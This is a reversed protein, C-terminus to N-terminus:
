TRRLVARMRWTALALLAVAFGALVGLQSGVDRVGADHRILEAFADIAWYHPTVRAATALTDSFLEIPLMAGGLAGLCLAVITGVGGAQEPDAFVTGFVMALGSAAAAALVIVAAAGLPDGWHVGYLVLTAVLIYAGQVVSVLFRGLAEGAIITGVTTPTSRMRSSIGLQRTQILAAAGSIGTLFLFLVLQSPAAVDYSAVGEPFLRDGATVTRVEVADLAGAADAVAAQAREPSAGRAVLAREAAARADVRALAEEVLTRLQQGAATTGTLVEVDVPAGSRVREDLDAPLVIGGDLATGEVRDRLDEARGLRDIQVDHAALSDLVLAATEGEPGVVGLRPDEEGRFQTGIVLILAVPFVFVFFVNTRDRAFRRLNAGAIALARRVASVV